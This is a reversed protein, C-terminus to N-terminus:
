DILTALRVTGKDETTGKKKGVGAVTRIRADTEWTEVEMGRVRELSRM